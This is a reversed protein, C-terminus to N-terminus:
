RTKRKRKGGEDKNPKYPDAVRDMFTDNGYVSNWHLYHYRLFKLYENKKEVWEEYCWQDSEQNGKNQQMEITVERPTLHKHAKDKEYLEDYTYKEGGFFAYSRLRTEIDTLFLVGDKVSPIERFFYKDNIKEKDIPVEKKLGFDVMIRLPIFSYQNSMYNRLGTLYYKFMNHKQRRANFNLDTIEGFNDYVKLDDEQFWGQNILEKRLKSLEAYDFSEDIRSVLEKRGEVYSGGVDCHVGPLYLEIGGKKGSEPLVKAVTEIDVLSFNLRHEDDAILHVVYKARDISHLGLDEIDNDQFLGHHPVTDFLGAFRIVLQDFTKSEETLLLGLYGHAPLPQLLYKPHVLCKQRDYPVPQNIAYEQATVDDVLHRVAAAGRSFGFVDITLVGVTTTGKGLVNMIKGVMAKITKRVKEIIGANATVGNIGFAYGAMDDDKYQEPGLKGQEDPHTLTSIGETYISYKKHSDSSNRDEIYSQYIIAPNSLDNDYSNEVEYRYKKENKDADTIDKQSHAKVGTRQEFAQRAETNYISNRTGDIFLGFTFDIRKRGDNVILKQDPAVLVPSNGLIGKEDYTADSESVILICDGLETKGEELGAHYVIPNIELTAGYDLAIMRGNGAGEFQWRPDIYVPFVCKQVSSRPISKGDEEKGSDGLLNEEITGAPPVLQPHTNRDFSHVGVKRLFIKNPGAASLSEIPDGDADHLKVKIQQGYLGETYIHLYVTSGYAAKRIAINRGDADKWEASKVVPKGVASILCGFPTKSQPHREEAVIDKKDNSSSYSFAEMYVLGGGKLIEPFSLLHSMENTGYTAVFNKRAVVPVSDSPEFIWRVNSLCSKLDAIRAILEKEKAMFVEHDAKFKKIDAELDRRQQDTYRSSAKSRDELDAIRKRQVERASALEKNLVDAEKAERIEVRFEGAETLHLRSAEKDWIAGKEKGYNSFDLHLGCM